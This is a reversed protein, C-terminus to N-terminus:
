ALLPTEENTPADDNEHDGTDEVLIDSTEENDVQLAASDSNTNTSRLYEEPTSLDAEPIM